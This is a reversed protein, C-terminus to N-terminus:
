LRERLYEILVSAAAQHSGAGPHQRAGVTQPTTDPLMLLSVRPDGSQAQYRELGSQIAPRVRDGLMGYAWVILAGPNYARLKALTRAVARALREMDEPEPTGDARLREQFREGTQEDVWAPSDFAGGDNSGLNVIVADTPWAAFDYDAQAGLLRNGEGSVPGCVREYYDPLARRPDNNWASLVGWGSQAVIRLEAGLADATLLAYHDRVTFLMSIWDTECLAGALGEGSTISDGIFELRYRPPPLPLFAGGDHRLGLLLLRHADDENMAQTEKFIRVHKPQGETMGRFLCLENGGRYLPTRMLWAGNIEVSIWPEYPGFDAEAVLWLEGGDYTLELGSATWFLAVPDRRGDTRGLVRVEPLQAITQFQM